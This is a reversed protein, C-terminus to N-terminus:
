RSTERCNPLPRGSRVELTSGVASALWTPVPLHFQRIPQIGQRRVQEEAPVHPTANSVSAHEAGSSM